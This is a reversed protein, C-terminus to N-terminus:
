CGSLRQDFRQGSRHILFGEVGTVSPPCGTVISAWAVPTTAPLTSLLRVRAGDHALGSLAPLRGSNLFREMTVPCFGDIGLLVTRHSKMCVEAHPCGTSSLA